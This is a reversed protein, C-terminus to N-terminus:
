YRRISAAEPAIAAQPALNPPVTADVALCTLDAYWAEGRTDGTYEAKMVYYLGDANTKISSALLGNSAQSRNDLSFRFPNVNGQHRVLQGIKIAPNILVRMQIGNQTQEPVGILGTAASILPVDGPMYSTKPILVLRGDQISWLVDQAEAFDRLEDRTLGYYVRGRPSGNRSLQPAYGAEVGHQAMAQVFAQVADDPTAGGALSVAMTSFNYAGDGDAATIDIYSNKADARGLRAQKITGDFILGFNGEYGAQIVIRTFEKTVLAATDRRVNWLRVDATNPTQVDGRKITFTARLESFDIARSPEDFTTTTGEPQDTVVTQSGGGIIISVKRGYQRVSM